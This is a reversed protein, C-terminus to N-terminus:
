ITTTPPTRLKIMEDITRRDSSRMLELSVHLLESPHCEIRSWNRQYKLTESHSKGNMQSSIGYHRAVKSIKIYLLCASHGSTGPYLMSRLSSLTFHFSAPKYFVFLRGLLVLYEHMPLFFSDLIWIVREGESSSILSQVTSDM